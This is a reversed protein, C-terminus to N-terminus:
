KITCYPYRIAHFGDMIDRIDDAELDSVLEDTITYEVKVHGVCRVIIRFSCQTPSYFASVAHVKKGTFYEFADCIEEPHMNSCKFINLISIGIQKTKPLGTRIMINYRKILDDINRAGRHLLRDLGARNKM